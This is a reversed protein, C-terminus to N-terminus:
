QELKEIKLESIEIDSMDEFILASKIEEEKYPEIDIDEKQGIEYNDTLILSIKWKNPM